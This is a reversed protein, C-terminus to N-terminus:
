LGLHSKLGPVQDLVQNTIDPGAATEAQKILTEGAQQIQAMDLGSARLAAIGNILAGAKEGLVGGLAGQLSSWAAARLPPRV